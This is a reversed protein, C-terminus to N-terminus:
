VILEYKDTFVCEYFTEGLPLVQFIKDNLLDGGLITMAAFGSNSLKIMQEGSFFNEGSEICEQLYKLDEVYTKELAICLRRFTHYNIGDKHGYARFIKKLMDVKEADDIKELTLLLKEGFHEDESIAKNVYKTRELSPIDQMYYCFAIIKKMSYANIVTKPLKILTYITKVVPINKLVDDDLFYDVGCELYDAAVDVTSKAMEMVVENCNNM